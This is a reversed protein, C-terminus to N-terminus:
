ELHKGIATILAAEQQLGVFREVERTDKLIVLTPIKRVGFREASKPEEDVNCKGVVAKGLMADAVREIIPGQARCPGCRPAWFDVLVVGENTETEFNNDTLALEHTQKETDKNRAKM